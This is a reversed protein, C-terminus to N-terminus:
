GLVEHMMRDVDLVTSVGSAASHPLTGSPGGTRRRLLCCGGHELQHAVLELDPSRQLMELVTVRDPALTGDLVVVRASALAAVVDTTIRARAGVFVLGDPDAGRMRAFGAADVAVLDPLWPSRALSLRLSRERLSWRSPAVIVASRVGDREVLEEVAELWEASVRRRAAARVEERAHTVLAGVGQRGGGTERASPSDDPAPTLAPLAGHTVGPDPRDALPRVTAARRRDGSATLMRATEHVWESWSTDPLPVVSARADTGPLPTVREGTLRAVLVRTRALEAHHLHPHRGIASRAEATRGLVLLARIRLAWVVPDPEAADYLRVNHDLLADVVALATEASGAALLTRARGVEADPLYQLNSAGGFSRLAARERGRGLDDWGRAVLRRDLADDAALPRGADSRQARRLPAFPTDQVIGHEGGARALDFWERVQGRQHPTHREAVLARGADLLTELEDPNALLHDIKDVVDDTDALVCNVMDVFGAAALVPTAEAVLATRAAPIELHKRVLDQTFSGCSPAFWAAALLRSYATGTALRHDQAGSDWGFHPMSLTPYHQALVRSVRNRWPYHRQRSGPLAVPFVKDVGQDRHDRHVGVDVSNPWVFLRDAIEPTYAAMTASGTFYTDVGWRAMDAVFVARVPDFADAHLFGVRPVDPHTHTNALRRPGTYVGSELMVLDPRHRDCLEDYDGAGEVVTVDFTLRLTAVQEALHTLLFDPLGSRTWRLLLLRPRVQPDPSSPNM